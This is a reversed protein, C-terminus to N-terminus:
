GASAKSIPELVLDPEIWSLRPDRNVYKRLMDGLIATVESLRSHDDVSGDATLLWWAFRDFVALHYRYLKCAKMLIIDVDYSLLTSDLAPRCPQKTKASLCVLLFSQEGMLIEAQKQTDIDAGDAVQHLPKAFIADKYWGTASDLIYAGLWAVFSLNGSHQPEAVGGALNPRHGIVGLARDPAILHLKGENQVEKSVVRLCGVM